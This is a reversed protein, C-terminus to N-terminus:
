QWDLSTPKTLLTKVWGLESRIMTYEQAVNSENGVALVERQEAQSLVEPTLILSSESASTDLSELSPTSYKDAIGIGNTSVGDWTCLTVISKIRRAINYRSISRVSFATNIEPSSLSQEFVEKYPGFGKVKLYVALVDRGKEDKASKLTVDKIYCWTNKLQIDRLRSFYEADTWGPKREPHDLESYLKGAQVRNMFSSGPTLTRKLYENFEYFEENLNYSAFSGGCIEYYGNKDPILKGEKKITPLINCGAVIMNNSSM